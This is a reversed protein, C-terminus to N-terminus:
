DEEFLDTGIAKIVLKRLRESAIGTTEGLGRVTLVVPLEKEWLADIEQRLMVAISETIIILRYGKKAINKFFLGNYKKREYYLPSNVELIFPINKKRAYKIGALNFLSHREYIFDYNKNHKILDHYDKLNYIMEMIEPVDASDSEVLTILEALSSQSSVSEGAVLDAIKAKM